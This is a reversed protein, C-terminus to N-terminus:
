SRRLIRAIKIRNTRQVIICPLNAALGYFTMVACAWAPNWLYFVPSCLLMGWHATEARRTEILFSNLSAVGRSEIRRKSKGGVWPAGDPLSGKWRSVQFVRRYFNGKQEFGRPKTLWSDHDFYRDPCVLFARALVLHIVPWALVNVILILLTM